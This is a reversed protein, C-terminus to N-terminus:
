QAFLDGQQPPPVIESPGRLWVAPMAASFVEAAFRALEPSLLNDPEHTFFYLERLGGTMWPKMRDAWARVRTFDSPHLGNGVFRVMSVPATIRLHCVDRRGAVDTIVAAVRRQTLMQFYLESDLDPMFFAPHRVEVALPFAAPWRDLFRELLPLQDVSFHPPLQLFTCGLRDGLEGIADCFTDLLRNSAGLDRAHSIVQPIKPCFRFDAPTEERWRAVSASDPLRYHTANHEMTSFQRGYQTLMERDRTGTPYWKGVWSKQHYGTAGIYLRPRNVPPFHRLTEANEPHEPPFSFDVFDVSPLKGFDM